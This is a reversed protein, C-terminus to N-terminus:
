EVIFTNYIKKCNTLSDLVLCEVTQGESLQFSVPQVASEGTALVRNVLYKAVMQNNKNYVAIIATVEQADNMNNVVKVSGTGNEALEFETEVAPKADYDAVSETFITKGSVGTVNKSVTLSFKRDYEFKNEIVLKVERIEGNEVVPVITYDDFAVKVDKGEENKVIEKIVFLAKTLSSEAVPGTFKITYTLNDLDTYSTISEIAVFINKNEAVTAAFAEDYSVEKEDLTAMINTCGELVARVNEEATSDLNNVAEALVKNLLVSNSIQGTMAFLHADTSGFTIEIKDLIKKDDPTLVHDTIAFGYGGSPAGTDYQPMYGRYLKLSAKGDNTMVKYYPAKIWQALSTGGAIEKVNQETSSTGDAYKYTVGFQMQDKHSWMASHIKTYSNNPVDIVVTSAVASAVSNNEKDIVGDVTTKVKGFQYPIGHITAKNTTPNVGLKEFFADEDCTMTGNLFAAFSWETAPNQIVFRGTDPDKVFNGNADRYQDQYRGLSEMVDKNYPLNFTTYSPAEDRQAVLSAFKETAVSPVVGGKAEIAAIAAEIATMEADANASYIEDLAEIRAVVTDIDRQLLDSDASEYLSEFIGINALGKNTGGAAKFEDISKKIAVITELQDKNYIIDLGDIANDIALGDKALGAFKNIKEVTAKAVVKDGDAAENEKLGDALEKAAIVENYMEYLYETGWSEAKDELGSSMVYVDYVKSFKAMLDSNFESALIGSDILADYEAKIGKVEERMSSSYVFAMNTIKGEVSAIQAAKIEAEASQYLADLKAVLASDYDSEVVGKSELTQMANRIEAIEMKQASNYTDDLADIRDEIADIEDQLSKGTITVSYVEQEDKCLRGLKAFYYYDESAGEITVPIYACNSNKIAVATGNEDTWNLAASINRNMHVSTVKKDVPIQLFDAYGLPCWQRSTSIGNSRAIRFDGFLVSEGKIILDDNPFKVDDLTIAKGIAQASDTETLYKEAAAINAGTSIDTTKPVYVITKALRDGDGEPNSSGGTANMYTVRNPSQPSLSTSIVYKTETTGDAYTIKVPFFGANGGGNVAHTSMLINVATPNEITGKTQYEGVTNPLVHANYGGTSTLHAGTGGIPGMKFSVNNHKYLFNMTGDTETSQLEFKSNGNVYMTFSGNAKAETATLYEETIKGDATGLISDIIFVKTAITKTSLYGKIHNTIPNGNVDKTPFISSADDRPYYKYVDAATAFADNTFPIDLYETAPANLLEERTPEAMFLDNVETEASVPAVFVATSLLMAVTLILSIIKKM